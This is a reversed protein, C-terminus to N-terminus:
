VYRLRADECTLKIRIIDAYSITVETDGNPDVHAKEVGTMSLTFSKGNAAPAIKFSTM